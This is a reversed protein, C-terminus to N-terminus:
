GGGGGGATEMVIAGVVAVTFTPALVSNATLMEPPEGVGVSADHEEDLVDIALTAAPADDHTTVPTDAPETVM